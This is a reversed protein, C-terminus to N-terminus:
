QAQAQGICPPPHTQIPRQLAVPRGPPPRSTTPRVGPLTDSNQDAALTWALLFRAVQLVRLSPTPTSRATPANVWGSLPSLRRKGQALAERRAEGYEDLAALYNRRRTYPDPTWPTLCSSLCLRPDAPKSLYALWGRLDHVPAAHLAAPVAVPPLPTVIHVHRRQGPIGELKMYAPASGVTQNVLTRAERYADLGYLPGPPLDLRYTYLRPFGAFVRVAVSLPRTAQRNRQRATDLRTNV